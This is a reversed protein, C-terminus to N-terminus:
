KGSLLDQIKSNNVYIVVTKVTSFQLATQEIQAIIRPDDCVGGSALQGTLKIVAEGNNLALSDLALNSQYLANYLGSEGYDKSHLSLLKELSARLVAQTRPVQVRVSVASDGCGVLPGTSGNDGVAILVINLTTTANTPPPPVATPPVATPPVNTRVPVGVVTPPPTPSAQGGNTVPVSTAVPPVNTAIVVPASTNTASPQSPQLAPLTAVSTVTPFLATPQASIVRSLSCAGSVLAFM